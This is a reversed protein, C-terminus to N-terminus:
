NPKLTKIEFGPIADVCETLFIVQTELTELKDWLAQNELVLDEYEDSDISDSETPTKLCPSPNKATM